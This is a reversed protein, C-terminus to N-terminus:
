RRRIMVTVPVPMLGDFARVYLQNLPYCYKRTVALCHRTGATITRLATSSEVAEILRPVLEMPGPGAVSGTSGTSGTGNANPSAVATSKADFVATASPLRGWGWVYHQKVKSSMKGERETRSGVDNNWWFVLLLM